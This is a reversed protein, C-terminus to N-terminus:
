DSNYIPSQFQLATISILIIPKYLHISYQANDSCYCPLFPQHLEENYPGCTFTVPHDQRQDCFQHSQCQWLIGLEQFACQVFPFHTSLLVLFNYTYSQTLLCIYCHLTWIALIIWTLLSFTWLCRHWMYITVSFSIVYMSTPFCPPAWYLLHCFRCGQSM